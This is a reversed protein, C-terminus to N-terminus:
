SDFLTMQNESVSPVEYDKDILKRNKKNSVVFGGPIREHLYVGWKMDPDYLVNGRYSIKGTVLHYARTGCPRRPIEATFHTPLSLMKGHIQPDPFPLLTDCYSAETKRELEIEDISKVTAM